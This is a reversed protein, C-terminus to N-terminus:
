QGKPFFRVIISGFVDAVNDDWKWPTVKAIVKLVQDITWVTAVINLWHTQIWEM